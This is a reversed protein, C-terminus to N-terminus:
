DIPIPHQHHGMAHQMTSAPFSRNITVGQRSLLDARARSLLFGYYSLLSDRIRSGTTRAGQEQDLLKAIHHETARSIDYGSILSALAGIIILLEWSPNIGLDDFTDSLALPRPVSSQYVLYGSTGSPVGQVMVISNTPSPAFHPYYAVSARRPNGSADYYTFHYPVILSFPPENGNRSVEMEFSRITHLSPSLSTCTDAIANFVALRSYAPEVIAQTNANHPTPTTGRAGRIVNLFQDNDEDVEGVIISELGLELLTGEGIADLEEPLLFNLDYPVTTATDTLTSPITIITERADPPYLWERIIRDVVDGISRFSSM